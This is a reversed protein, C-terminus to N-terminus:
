QGDDPTEFSYVCCCTHTMSTSQRRAHDPRSRKPLYDVYGTHYIGIATYVINLSRIISLLDAHFMYLEKDLIFNLFLADQQSKNYSTGLFNLILYLLSYFPLKIIRQKQYCAIHGGEYPRTSKQEGVFQSVKIDVTLLSLILRAKSWTQRTYL